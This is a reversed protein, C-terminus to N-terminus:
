ETSLRCSQAGGTECVAKLDGVSEGVWVKINGKPVKWDQAVTDWISVDKRTIEMKLVESQGSTLTATKQFQRLQLKPTPHTDDTPLEVYVQAVARGPKKGTNTVKISVSFAVDWLAHNGGEAGGARPDPQPKTTYGDPYPYGSPNPKISTPNDLYPYIYRTIRNFTKPWQVESAPPISGPYTPTKGKPKRAPPYKSLPTVVNLSPETFKFTAYSLGYGFHYRPAIGAKQFHRYDIFLGESFPDQIQGIPQNILSVSDPYDSEAKPITYPLHGSPSFEGFLIDTVSNGAEQGPLHAFLVSKVSPLDIWKEMLIPGVTHVVVVVNSFKNAAAEILEDGGHWLKLEAVTRDGPNSEVIIYNEGSDANVFVIAVDDPGAKVNRPFKDTIYFEAKQSINRIADEPTILYPLNSSGSGWGMTLVGKNCGKDSCSNIGNPNTGADAGFVKISRNRDLPLLDDENKLLTISDRAIQRALIHHDSQVNVYENITGIPSFLAGPYLLGRANQSYSSFNPLPFDKDQGFKYWTAVIRTVQMFTLKTFLKMCKLLVYWIM